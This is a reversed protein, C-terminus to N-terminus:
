AALQPASMAARRILISLVPNRKHPMSSSGGRKGTAPESLEAIEPRVLTVVDSAIRGWNDTCGVFADAAATVPTRTTHWPLRIHLGLTTATDRVLHDSVEAPDAGETLLTALEATAAWTGAAGGIQIPTVLEALRELADVVGNLWGAAKAGFTTPSAHQTLTRAVMPTGRHAAALASLTSIQEAHQPILDDVVARVALMLSTDLVDQSTLGRHIWPAIAPVARQRLLEVLGVIPNGGDEASIALSERDNDHLLNSLDAGACDAPALGAAGLASLWASEVAVMSRLLAQDTLHEGARHDGPWLLNTM